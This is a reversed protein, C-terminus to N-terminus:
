DPSAIADKKEDPPAGADFPRPLEAPDGGASRKRRLVGDLFIVLFGLVILSYYTILRWLLM